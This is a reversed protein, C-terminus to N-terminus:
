DNAKRELERRKLRAQKRLSKLESKKVMAPKKLLRQFAASEAAYEKALTRYAKLNRTGIALEQDGTTKQMQKM